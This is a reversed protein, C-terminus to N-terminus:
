EADTRANLKELLGPAAAAMEASLTSVADDLTMGGFKALIKQARKLSDLAAAAKALEPNADKDARALKKAISAETKEKKAQIEALQQAFSKRPRKQPAQPTSASADNPQTPTQM